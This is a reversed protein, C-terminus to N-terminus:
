ILNKIIEEYSHNYWAFNIFSRKTDNVKLVCHIKSVNLLYSDNSSAVFEGVPNLDKIDYVNAQDKGPYIEAQADNDKKEFFITRDNKASIYFNLCVLPGHDIHAGLLGEGTIQSYCVATPPIRCFPKLLLSYIQNMHTFEFYELLVTPAQYSDVVQGLKLNQLIESELNIFNDIKKFYGELQDM